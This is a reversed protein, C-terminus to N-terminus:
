RRDDSRLWPDVSDDTTEALGEALDRRLGPDAQTLGALLERTSLTSPRTSRPMLVAVPRDSVTIELSEGAEVRRLVASVQNRLDRM